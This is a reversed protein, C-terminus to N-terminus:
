APLILIEAEILKATLRDLAATFKYSITRTGMGLLQAAESQTYEQIVIKDLLDRDLSPLSKICKEMDFIFIITDEFTRIPRSSVWGRGIPSNLTCAIRCPQMSAYLYRRLMGHTHARLYFVDAPSAPVRVGRHYEGSAMEPDFVCARNGSV